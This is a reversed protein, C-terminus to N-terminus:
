SDPAPGQLRDAVARFLAALGFSRPLAILVRRVSQRVHASVKLVRLRLTDFQLSALKPSVAAVHTRLMFLLRYAAAHLLLRFANAVYTTCSLRDAHLANKLAKIHNEANGRGCYGWEYLVRPSFETLSTVIFRNQPGRDTYEVRVLVQRPHAWTEAAYRFTDFRRTTRKTHGFGEAARKMADTALRSLVANSTLGLLYDVDGLETNLRDLLDLLRPVGFGSDGRVVIQVNPFRAKIARIVRDLMPATYRYNGANGPRLRLNVLRGDGDFLLVPHYVTHDYYGHFFALQQQGHTPDDTTDLDLVVVTTDAPLEDVYAQELTRQIACVDRATAAHELRSLTPQSSLGKPDQPMRDCVTNLLPDHRLTVADNCDEYGLAVQFVRQRIQEIRSHVVREPDRADHVIAGIKACLGLQDDVQRLLLLGGDSSTQPADFTLDVPRDPHFDLRLQPV